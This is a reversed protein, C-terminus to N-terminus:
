AGACQIRGPSAARRQIAPTTSGLGVVCAAGLIFLLSVAGLLSLPLMWSPNASPGLPAAGLLTFQFFGALWLGASLMPRSSLRPIVYGLTWLGILSVYDAWAGASALSGLGLIGLWILGRQQRAEGGLRAGLFWALGVLLLAYGTSLVTSLGALGPFFVALKLVIGRMGQNAAVLLDAVEPWAEGFAFAEGSILRPVQQFFFAFYPESGLVAVGALCWLACAALIAAVDRFRREAMLLVVLLAPFLKALIAFAILAAGVGRRKSELAILGGVCLALTAFHFQGYQFNYLVPFSSFLLPFALLSAGSSRRKVWAALLLVGGVCVFMNLALWVSRIARYDNSLALSLRPLLLFPPAYQFPDEVKMGVVHTQPQADRTLGPYHGPAYLNPVQRESLEGAFIYASLCEHESYFPDSTTLVFSSDTDAFHQSLRTFQIVALLGMLGFVAARRRSSALSYIWTEPARESVWRQVLGLVLAAPILTMGMWWLDRVVIAFAAALCCGIWLSRGVPSRRNTTWLTVGLAALLSCVSLAGAAPSVEEAHVGLAARAIAALAHTLPPFLLGVVLLSLARRAQNPNMVQKGLNM